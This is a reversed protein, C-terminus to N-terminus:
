EIYFGEVGDDVYQQLNISFLPINDHDNIVFVHGISTYQAAIRGGVCCRM